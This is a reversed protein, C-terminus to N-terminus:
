HHFCKCQFNFTLHVFSFLVFLLCCPSVQLSYPSLAEVSGPSSVSSLSHVPTLSSVREEGDPWLLTFFLILFRFELGMLLLHISNLIQKFCQTWSVSEKTMQADDSTGTYVGGTDVANWPAMDIHFGLEPYDSDQSVLSRENLFFFRRKSIM